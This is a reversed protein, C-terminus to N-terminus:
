SALAPPPPLLALQLPRAGAAGAVRAAQAPDLALVAVAGGAGAAPALLSGSGEGGEVLLVRASRVLVEGGEPSAGALADAGPGALVAVRDGLRVLGAPLPGDVAVPVALEGDAAGRLLSPGALRADTVPEGRRVPSALLGGTAAAPSLAGDPVAEPPLAVPRLDGEALRHGAPLDRAATLVQASPPPAPQLAAVGTGAAAALLVAALLRRRRRLARRLRSAAGPGARM